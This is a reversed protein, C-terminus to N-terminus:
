NSHNVFANAGKSEALIQDTTQKDSQWKEIVVYLHFLGRGIQFVM